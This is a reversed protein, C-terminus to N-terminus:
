YKRKSKNEITKIHSPCLVIPIQDHSYVYYPETFCGWCKPHNIKSQELWGPKVSPINKKTGIMQFSFNHQKFFNDRWTNGFKFPFDNSLVDPFRVPYLDDNLIAKKADEAKTVMWMEIVVGGKSMIARIRAALINEMEAYLGVPQRRLSQRARDSEITAASTRIKAETQLWQNLRKKEFKPRWFKTRAWWVTKMKNAHGEPLGHYYDLLEVIEKPMWNCQRVVIQASDDDSQATENEEIDVVGQACGEDCGENELDESLRRIQFM